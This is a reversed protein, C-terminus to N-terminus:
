KENQLKVKYNPEAYEVEPIASFEKIADEVSQGERLKIHYVKINEIFKVVSAGKESIITLA